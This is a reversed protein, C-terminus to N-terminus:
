AAVEISLEGLALVEHPGCRVNTTGVTVCSEVGPLRLVAESLAPLLLLGGSPVAAIVSAVATRIRGELSALTVGSALDVVLSVDLPRVTMKRVEAVVGAPRYGPVITGDEEVWGDVIAQARAVLADSAAGAGGHIYVAMYGPVETYAVRSVYDIARGAADTVVASRVGYLVSEVTGRSISRIFAAFRRQREVEPEADRGGIIPENDLSAGAPLYGNLVEVVEGAGLNTSAGAVAATVPVFLRTAGVPATVTEDCVYRVENSGVFVTGASVTYPEVLPEAFRVVVFGRAAAAEAPDFGFAQYVSVPIAELIGALMRQYLEEIEIAPSEMLTRAVSGVSFDTIDSQTARAYNIMSAAIAAFSKIQFAM